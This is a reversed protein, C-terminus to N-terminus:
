RQERRIAKEDPAKTVLVKVEGEYGPFEEDVMHQVREADLTEGQAVLYNPVRIKVAYEYFEPM